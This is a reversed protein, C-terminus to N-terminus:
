DKEVLDTADWELWNIWYVCGLVSIRSGKLPLYIADTELCICKGGGGAFVPFGTIGLICEGSFIDRVKQYDKSGAIAKVRRHIGKAFM